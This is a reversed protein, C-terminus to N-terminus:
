IFLHVFLICIFISLAAGKCGRKVIGCVPKPWKWLHCSQIHSALVLKHPITDYFLFACTWVSLDFHAHAHTHMYTHTHAHILTHYICWCILTLFRGMNVFFFSFNTSVIVLLMLCKWSIFPIIFFLCPLTIFILTCFVFFFLYSFFLTAVTFMIEVVYNWYFFLLYVRQFPPYPVSLLPLIWRPSPPPLTLHFFIIEIPYTTCGSFSIPSSGGSCPPAPPLFFFFFGNWSGPM